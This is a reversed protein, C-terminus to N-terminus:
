LHICRYEDNKPLHPLGDLRLTIFTRGLFKVSLMDFRVKWWVKMKWVERGGEWSGCEWDSVLGLSEIGEQRAKKGTAGNNTAKNDM